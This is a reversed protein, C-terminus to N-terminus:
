LFFLFNILIPDFNLFIHSNPILFDLQLLAKRHQSQVLTRLICQRLNGAFNSYFILLIQQDHFSILSTM